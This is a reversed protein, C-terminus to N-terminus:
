GGRGSTRYCVEYLEDITLEGAQLAFLALAVPRRLTVCLWGRPVYGIGVLLRIFVPGTM